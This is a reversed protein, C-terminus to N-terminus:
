PVVDLIGGAGGRHTHPHLVNGKLLRRTEVPLDKMDELGRLLYQATAKGPRRDKWLRLMNRRQMYEDKKEKKIEDLDENKLGLHLAAKEWRRGLTKAVVQIQEASLDQGPSRTEFVKDPFLFLAIWM